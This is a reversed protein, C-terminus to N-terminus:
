AVLVLATVSVTLLVIGLFERGGLREGFVLRGAIVSFLVEVQGLGNVYAAGQLTYATFWGLSGAVSALGVLSTVPWARLVIGLQAPERHCLWAGLAVTQGFTVVALTVAARLLPDESPVSLTPGRYAVGSIGFLTGALLGLGASENWIQRWGRGVQGPAVSLVVVGLLGLAIAALGPASVRDGLILLGFVASQLVDTKKLTMGVAFHRRAFLAVVCMTALIQATGGLVAYALFSPAPMGLTAGSVRAWMVATAAALPFAWLFRAFTAATTTLRTVRLQRQLMFRLNQMFAACITAVAWLPIVTDM